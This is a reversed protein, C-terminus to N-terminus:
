LIADLIFPEKPRRIPPPRKAGGKLSPVGSTETAAKEKPADPSGPPPELPGKKGCGAVILSVGIAALLVQRRKWLGKGEFNINAM